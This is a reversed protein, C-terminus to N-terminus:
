KENKFKEIERFILDFGSDICEDISAGKFHVYIPQKNLRLSISGEFYSLVPKIDAYSRNHPYAKPPHYKDINKKIFLRFVVLDSEIDELYLDVKKLHKEIHKYTTEPVECNKKTLKFIM